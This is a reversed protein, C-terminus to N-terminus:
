CPRRLATTTTTATPTSTMLLDRGWRVVWLVGWGGLWGSSGGEYEAGSFQTGVEFMICFSVLWAYLRLRVANARGRERAREREREKM